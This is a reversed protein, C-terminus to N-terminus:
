GIVINYKYLLGVVDPLSFKAKAIRNMEPDISYNYATRFDAGELKTNEFTAGQLDCQDFNAQPLEAEIFEVDHLKCSKFQANKLKLKYFSSFNLICDEFSFSLLM